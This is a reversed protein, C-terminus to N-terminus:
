MENSDRMAVTVNLSWTVLSSCIQCAHDSNGRENVVLNSRNNKCALSVCGCAPSGEEVPGRVLVLVALAGPLPSPESESSKSPSGISSSLSAFLPGDDIALSASAVAVCPVPVRLDEPAAPSAPAAADPADATEDATAPFTADAADAAAAAAAAAAASFSARSARTRPNLRRSSSATQSALPMEDAPDRESISALSIAAIRPPMDISNSAFGVSCCVSATAERHSSSSSSPAPMATVDAAGVIFAADFTSSMSPCSKSPSASSPSGIEVGVVAACASGFPLTSSDCNDFSVRRSTSTSTMRRVSLSSASPRAGSSTAARADSCRRLSTSLASCPPLESAPRCCLPAWRSLPFSPSLLRGLSRSRSRSRLSRDSPLSASLSLSRRSREGRFSFSLSRSRSGARLFARSRRLWLRSRSRSRRELRLRLRSRWRRRQIITPRLHLGRADLSAQPAISVVPRM